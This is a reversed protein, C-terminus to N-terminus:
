VIHETWGACSRWESTWVWFRERRRCWPNFFLLRWLIEFNFRIFPSTLKGCDDLLRKSKREGSISGHVNSRIIARLNATGTIEPQFSRQFRPIPKCHGHIASTNVALPHSEMNPLHRSIQPLKVNFHIEVNRVHGYVAAPRERCPEYSCTGSYQSIMQYLSTRCKKM